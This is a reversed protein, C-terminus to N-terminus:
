PVGARQLGGEAEPVRQPEEVLGAIRSHDAREGLVERV